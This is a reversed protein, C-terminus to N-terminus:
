LRGVGLELGNLGGGGVVATMPWGNGFVEHSLRVFNELVRVFITEINRM